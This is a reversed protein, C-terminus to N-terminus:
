ELAGVLGATRDIVAGLQRAQDHHRMVHRRGLAGEAAATGPDRLRVTLARALAAPDEVPVVEGAAGADDELAQRMGTVDTAVVSRGCAMAELVTFAMGEWRSPLAVVDSTALWRPIDEQEGVIRVQPPSSAELRARDPGDGVLVLNADPVEKLVAPWARLLLDQGKQRCLRGVCVAIPADRVEAALLEKRALEREAPEAVAFRELDIGYLVTAAPSRIGASRGLRREDASVCILLHVWRSAIREWGTVARRMPGDVAAFSWAHPQFLTPRRGRVVLRGVLGAKSSHLHVAAPNLASVHDRLEGIEQLLSRGVERHAGWPLHEVGAAALQAALWGEAPCAVVPRWGHRLQAQVLSAVYRGVGGEIPQTVHLVTLQAPLSSL